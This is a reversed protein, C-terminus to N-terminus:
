TDAVMGDDKDAGEQQEEGADREDDATSGQGAHQMADLDVLPQKSSSNVAAVVADQFPRSIAEDVPTQSHRRLASPQM